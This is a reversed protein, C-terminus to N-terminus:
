FVGYVIEAAVATVWTMTTGSFTVEPWNADQGFSNPWEDSGTSSPAFAFPTGLATGAVTTNGNSSISQTGLVKGLRQTTSFILVGSSNYIEVGEPM